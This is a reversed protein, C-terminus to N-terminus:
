QQEYEVGSFLKLQNYVTILEREYRLKLLQAEAFDQEFQLVQFTTTRGQNYRRKEVSLKKEQIQVMKQTLKLRQKFNAFREQLIEYERDVEYQKRQFQLDSATVEQAYAKKYDSLASLDLPMTFRIGYVSYPRRNSFAMDYADNYSNADRGNMSYNAYLELNPRNRQRGLEANALALEKNALFARVDERMKMKQPLSADLIYSSDKGKTGELNVVEGEVQRISNFDRLATDIETKTDQLGLERSQLNADAQVLDSEDTLNNRVRNANWDRIKKARELSEEVVKLSTQAVYLRWYANEANILVQKALYQDNWRAADVQAIQAKETAEFESGLFNRWLSQTLEIQPAVDFFQRAPVLSPNVGNLQNKYYNYSLTAKTGTRFNQSLGARLTHRITQTGQFAPALTPRQDDSYEGTLFFSPKFFLTGETRRLEKAETSIKLGRVSTNKERVENLYDELTIAFVGQSATLALATVTILRQFSM